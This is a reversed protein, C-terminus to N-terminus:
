HNNAERQEDSTYEKLIADFDRRYNKDVDYWDEHNKQSNYVTSRDQEIDLTNVMKAFSMETTKILINYYVVRALVFEHKRVKTDLDVDYYRNVIEKLREIEESQKERKPRNLKVRLALNENTLKVCKIKLNNHDNLLTKYLRRYETNTYEKLDTM